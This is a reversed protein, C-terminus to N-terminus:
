KGLVKDVRKEDADDLQYRAHIDKILADLRSYHKTICTCCYVVEDKVFFVEEDSKGHCKDCVHDTGADIDFEIM